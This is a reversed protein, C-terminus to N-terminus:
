AIQREVWQEDRSRYVKSQGALSPPGILSTTPFVSVFIFTLLFVGVLFSAYIIDHIPLVNQPPM